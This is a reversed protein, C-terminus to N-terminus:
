FGKIITLMSNGQSNFTVGANLNEKIRTYRAADIASILHNVLIAGAFYVTSNKYLDSKIRLDEFSARNSSNDWQWYYSPDLYLAEWDRELQQIQNYEDMDDYNGIDVYYDHNKGSPNIEAHSVAYAKYDNELWNGYSQFSYMGGWLLAEMSIYILALNSRNQSYQGWGPILLSKLFPRADTAQGKSLSPAQIVANHYNLSPQSARLSFLKSQFYGPRMGRVSIRMKPQPLNAIGATWSPKEQLIGASSNQVGTLTAVMLTIFIFKHTKLM